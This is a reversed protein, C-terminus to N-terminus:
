AEVDHVYFEGMTNAAELFRNFTAIDGALEKKFEDWAPLQAGAKAM